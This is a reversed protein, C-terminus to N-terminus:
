NNGPDWKYKKGAWYVYSQGDPEQAKIAPVVKKNILARGIDIKQFPVNILVFKAKWGFVRSKPMSKLDRDPAQWDHIVLLMRRAGTETAFKSTVAPDGFGFFTNYPDAVKYHFQAEDLLPNECSGVIVIDEQGDGDLDARLPSFGKLVSCGPGFERAVIKQLEAQSLETQPPAQLVPTVGVTAARDNSAAPTQGLAGTAVSLVAIAVIPLILGPRM